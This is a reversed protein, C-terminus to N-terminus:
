QFLNLQILKLKGNNVVATGRSTIDTVMEFNNPIVVTGSIDIFGWKGDMCVAAYGNHFSRADEFQYDIILQGEKDVYGWKGNRCVAAYGISPFPKADEYEESGINVGEENIIHYAQGIKVFVLKQRTAFGHEDRLVDDYVFETKAKGNRSILGWKGNQKAAVLKDAPITMDEYIFDCKQVLNSDLLGYYGDKTAVIRENNILGVSQYQEMDPVKRTNADKDVYTYHGNIVVLALGDESMPGVYEYAGALVVEGQADLLEYITNGTELDKALVVFCDEYSDVLEAYNFPMEKYSGKLKLLWKKAYENNPQDEVLQAVYRVAALKDHEQYYNMLSDLADEHEPHSNILEKSLNVFKKNEGILLYDIAIKYSIEYNGPDYELANQYETIADVYIGQEELAIAKAMCEQIRKPNEIVNSITMFWALGTLVIFALLLKSKLKM